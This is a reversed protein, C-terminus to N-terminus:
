PRASLVIQNSGRASQLGYARAIARVFDETDGVRFIGSVALSQPAPQGLVIRQTSYRNMEAIAEALPTGDLVVQGRRWATLRDLSPRDVAPPADPVLTLRDGPILPIPASGSAGVTVKGEMLTVTLRDNEQRVLFATGLALIKRGNIEVSFPRTPDRAVEFLAEGKRMQIRRADDSYSVKLRTDTNLYARTGDALRLTRQEGIATLVADNRLYLATGAVAVIAVLLAAAAARSFNMRWGWTEWHRVAETPRRRLQSSKDWADTLLEVAAAREPSEAIWRRFGAEVDATRNPGHLRVVWASAQARLQPSIKKM